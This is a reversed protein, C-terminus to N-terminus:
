APNRMETKVHIGWEPIHNEGYEYEGYARLTIDFSDILCAILDADEASFFAKAREASENVFKM